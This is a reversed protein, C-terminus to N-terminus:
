SRLYSITRVNLANWTARKTVTTHDSTGAGHDEAQGVTGGKRRRLKLRRLDHAIARSRRVSGFPGSVQRRHDNRQM